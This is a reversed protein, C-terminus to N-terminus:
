ESKDINTEIFRETNECTKNLLVQVNENDKIVFRLAQLIVAQNSLILLLAADNIM